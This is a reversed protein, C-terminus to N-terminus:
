ALYLAAGRAVVRRAATAARGGARVCRPQCFKVLCGAAELLLPGDAELLLPLSM